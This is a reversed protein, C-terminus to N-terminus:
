VTDSQRRKPRIGCHSGPRLYRWLFLRFLISAQREQVKPKKRHAAFFTKLGELAGRLRPPLRIEAAILSLRDAYFEQAYLLTDELHNKAMPPKEFPAYILYQGETDM